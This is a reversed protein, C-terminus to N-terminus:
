EHSGEKLTFGKEILVSDIHELTIKKLHSGQKLTMFRGVTQLMVPKTIDTFGLDYFINQLEPYQGILQYMTMNADIQIM